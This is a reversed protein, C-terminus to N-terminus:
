KIVEIVSQIRTIGKRICDQNTAFSLRIFDPAGFAECPIVVTATDDLIIQALDSASNIQRGNVSKGFFQSVKVMYYFAGQPFVYSISTLKDLCDRMCNRRLEFTQRMQETFTNEGSIAAVAARQAISNVNGTQHSQLGSILKAYEESPCACYGIRWGTMAYAKSVGNVIITRLFLESYQALSVHNNGDFILKDYIEDSIIWIDPYKSLVQAIEDYNQKSYVAGTPNNPSNFIIAKTRPTIAKEIDSAQPVFNNEASATVVVCKGGCLKVLEPYTLWYPAIVIVEDGEEVVLQLANFLAQKAGNCVVIQNSNYTLALDLQLKESIAQRLTPIGAVATYKTYGCDLASKAADVIHQPTSFDPEGVGFSIVDIGEDRLKNAKATLSLTLSPSVTKSRKSIKM